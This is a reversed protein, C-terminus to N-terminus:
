LQDLTAFSYPAWPGTVEVRLSPADWADVVARLADGGGTPGDAPVLYAANLVMEEQHGSLRPDQPPYRRSAVAIGAALRHLADAAQIAQAHGAAAREREEKKRMLYSTGPRGNGAAGVPEQEAGSVAFAKIGFEVRGRVRELAARFQSAYARLLARVRDDDLYVTAMRVPAVPGAEAAAAVVADHARAVREVWALDELSSRLADEAFRPRSVSSVVGTLEGEQVLRVASRTSASRPRAVGGRM